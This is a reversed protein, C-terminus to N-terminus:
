NNRIEHVARIMAKINEPDTDAPVDCSTSLILYPESLAKRVEEAIKGRDGYLITDTAVGGMKITETAPTIDEISLIDTGITDLQPVIPQTEGCIHVGTLLGTPRIKRILIKIPEYAFKSFIEPSIVSTSAVPDGIFIDVELSLLRELYGIQFETAQEVSNKAETAKKLIMKLFKEIGVLFAALSFPGKISVFIPVDLKSKLIKAAKIIDGTRDVIYNSKPGLLIPYPELQVPCGLAQAEVYPDSFVLAMDYQYVNYGYELVEALKEGNSAVESFNSNTLRACHDACVM